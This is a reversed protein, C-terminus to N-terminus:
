LIIGPAAAGSLGWAVAAYAWAVAAAAQLRAGPQAMLAAHSRHGICGVSEDRVVRGPKQQLDQVTTAEPPRALAETADDRRHALYRTRGRSVRAPAQPEDLHAALRDRARWGVALYQSGTAVIATRSEFGARPPGPRAPAPIPVALSRHTPPGGAGTSTPRTGRTAATAMRTASADASKPTRAPRRRTETRARVIGNRRRESRDEFRGSGRNLDDTRRQRTLSFV